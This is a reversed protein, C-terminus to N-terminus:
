SIIKKNEVEDVIFLNIEFSKFHDLLVDSAEDSTKLRKM